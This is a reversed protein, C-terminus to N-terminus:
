MAWYYRILMCTMVIAGTGVLLGKGFFINKFSSIEYQM